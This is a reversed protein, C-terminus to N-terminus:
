TDISYPSLDVTHVPLEDAYGEGFSDGMEFEGGPVFVMPTCYDCNSNLVCDVFLPIDLGGMTGDCDLDANTLDCNPFAAQYGAPDTLALVLPGVDLANVTNDCNMDGPPYQAQASGAMSIVLVLGITITHRPPM